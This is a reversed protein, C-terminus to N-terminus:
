TVKTLLEHLKQAARDRRRVRDRDLWFALGVIAVFLILFVVGLWM